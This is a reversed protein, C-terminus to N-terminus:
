PPMHIVIGKPKSIFMNFYSEILQLWVDFMIAIDLFHNTVQLVYLFVVRHCNNVYGIIM